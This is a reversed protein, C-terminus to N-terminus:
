SYNLLPTSRRVGKFGRESRQLSDLEALLKYKDAAHGQSGRMQRPLSDRRSRLAEFAVRPAPPQLL